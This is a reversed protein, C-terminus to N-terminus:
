DTQKEKPIKIETKIELSIVLYKETLIGTLKVKLKVTVTLKAMVIEMM